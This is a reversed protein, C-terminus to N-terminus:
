KVVKVIIDDERYSASNGDYMTLTVEDGVALGEDDCEWIHGSKDEISAWGDNIQTVQCKDMSYFNGVNASLAVVLIAGILTKM